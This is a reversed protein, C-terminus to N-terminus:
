EDPLTAGDPKALGLIQYARTEAEVQNLGAKRFERYAKLIAEDRISDVTNQLKKVKKDALKALKDTNADAFQFIPFNVENGEADQVGARMQDETMGTLLTLLSVVQTWYMTIPFRQGLNYFSIGGKEGIKWYPGNSTQKTLEAIKALLEERTPEHGMTHTDSM